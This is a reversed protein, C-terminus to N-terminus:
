FIRRHGNRVGQRSGSGSQGHDDLKKGRQDTVYFVDAVQDLRTSIRSAHIPSGSSFCRMPLSMCCVRAITPSCMSSRSLRGVNRQRDAGGDARRKRGRGTLKSGRAVACCMTSRSGAKSCRRSGIRSLGCGSSGSAGWSLRSGRCSVHRGRHRGSTTLIQADLIQIGSGAMVGAIKSFIGPTVDNHAVVTYECTGLEGNFHADVLVDGPHVAARRGLACSDTDAVHWLCLAWPIPAFQAEIWALTEGAQGALMPHRSVEKAIQASENRRVRARERDGSVESLHASLTRDPAVREVQDLRRSRRRCYRSSDPALLKRLVEPTGIERAFPLVVKM